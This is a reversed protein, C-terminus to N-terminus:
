AQRQKVSADDSDGESEFGSLISQLQARARSYHTKVSGATCQMVAATQQVDMGEFARLLFAQCQRASLGALANDLAAGFEDSMGLREPNTDVLDPVVQVPDLESDDNASSGWGLVAFIKGSRARRRQLDTIRSYLIKYFLPVWEDAPKDAYKQVLKFMADQVADLADDRDALSLQAIRLARREVSILFDELTM